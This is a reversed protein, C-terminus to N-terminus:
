FDMNDPVGTEIAPPYFVLIDGRQIPRGMVSNSLKEVLVRDNIKLNPEMSSSPIYRAEAITGKLLAFIGIAMVALKLSEPSAHGPKARENM